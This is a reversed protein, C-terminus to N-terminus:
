DVEIFMYMDKLYAKSFAAEENGDQKRQVTYDTTLIHSM